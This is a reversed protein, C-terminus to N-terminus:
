TIGCHTPRNKLPTASWQQHCCLCTCCTRHLLTCGRGVGGRVAADGARQVVWGHGGRTLCPAPGHVAERALAHHLWRVPLAKHQAPRQAAGLTNLLVAPPSRSAVDRVRRGCRLTCLSRSPFSSPLVCARPQGSCTAASALAVRVTCSRASGAGGGVCPLLVRGSM